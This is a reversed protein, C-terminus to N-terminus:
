DQWSTMIGNEFYLFTPKSNSGFDGYVWQERTGYATVTRNIDKPKGWSVLVMEKTMGISVVGKLCEIKNKEPWNTQRIRTIKEEIDSKFDHVVVGLSKHIYKYSSKEPKYYVEMITVDDTVADRSLGYAIIKKYVRKKGTFRVFFGEEYEITEPDPLLEGEVTKLDPAFEGRAGLGTAHNKIDWGKKIDGGKQHYIGIWNSKKNSQKVHKPLEIVEWKQIKGIIKYNTGPGSRINGNKLAVFCQAQALGSPALALLALLPFLILKHCKM